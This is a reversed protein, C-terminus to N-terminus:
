ALRRPTRPGNSTGSVYFVHPHGRTNRSSILRGDCEYCELKLIIGIARKLQMGAFRGRDRGLENTQLGKLSAQNSLAQRRGWTGALSLPRTQGPIPVSNAALGKSNCSY